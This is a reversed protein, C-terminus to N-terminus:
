YVLLPYNTHLVTSSSFLSVGQGAFVGRKHAYLFSPKRGVESNDDAEFVVGEVLMKTTFMLVDCAIAFGVIRRTGPEKEGDARNKSGM